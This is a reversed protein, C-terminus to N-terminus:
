KNYNRALAAKYEQIMRADNSGWVKRFDTLQEIIGDLQSLEDLEIVLPGIKIEGEFGVIEGSIRKVPNLTCKIEADRVEHQTIIIDVKVM